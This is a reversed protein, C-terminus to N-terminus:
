RDLNFSSSGSISSSSSPAPRKVFRSLAVAGAVTAISGSVAKLGIYKGEKRINATRSLEQEIEVRILDRQDQTLSIGERIARVEVMQLGITSSKLLVDTRVANLRDDYSEQSFKFDLERSQLDIYSRELEDVYLDLQKSLQENRLELSEVNLNLTRESLDNTLLQGATAARTNEGIISNLTTQSENLANQYPARGAEATNREAISENVAIESAQKQLGLADLVNSMYGEGRLGSSQGPSPAGTGQPASIGGADSSGSSSYYNGVSLGADKLAQVQASHSSYDRYWQEQRKYANSAALEGYKYSRRAQRKNMAGQVASSAGGGIAAVGASIGAGAAVSVAM